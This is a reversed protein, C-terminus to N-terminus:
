PSDAQLLYRAQRPQWYAVCREILFNLDIGWREGSNLLGQLRYHNIPKAEVVQPWSAKAAFNM